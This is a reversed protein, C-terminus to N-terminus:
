DAWLGLASHRVTATTHNVCEHLVVKVRRYYYLSVTPAQFQQFGTWLGAGHPLTPDPTTSRVTPPWVSSISILVYCLLIVDCLRKNPLCECHVDSHRRWVRRRHVDSCRWHQSLATDWLGKVGVYTAIHTCRYLMKHWVSSRTLGDNTIKSM